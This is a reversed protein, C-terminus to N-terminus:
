QSRQTALRLQKLEDLCAACNRIHDLISESGLNAAAAALTTLALQGPCGVRETNPHAERVHRGFTAILDDLEEERGVMLGRTIKYCAQDPNRGSSCM